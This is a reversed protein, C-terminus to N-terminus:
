DDDDKAGEGAIVFTSKEGYYWQRESSDPCGGM